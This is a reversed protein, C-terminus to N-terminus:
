ANAHPHHIVVLSLFSFNSALAPPILFFISIKFGLYRDIERSQIDAPMELIVPQLLDRSLHSRNYATHQRMMPGRHFPARIIVKQIYRHGNQACMDRRSILTIYPQTSMYRDVYPYISLCPYINRLLSEDQLYRRAFTMLGMRAVRSTISDISDLRLYVRQIM